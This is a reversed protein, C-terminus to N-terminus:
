PCLLLCPQAPHPQCSPCSHSEIRLLLLSLALPVMEQGRHPSRHHSSPQSLLAHFPSQLSPLVPSTAGKAPPPTEHPIQPQASGRPCPVLSCLPLGTRVKPSNTTRPAAHVRCDKASPLLLPHPPAADQEGRMEVGPPRSAELPPLGALTGQNPSKMARMLPDATRKPWGPHGLTPAAGQPSPQQAGTVM